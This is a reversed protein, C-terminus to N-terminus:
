GYEMPLEILARLPGYNEAAHEDYQVITKWMKFGCISGLTFVSEIRADVVGLSGRSTYRYGAEDARGGREGITDNYAADTLKYM